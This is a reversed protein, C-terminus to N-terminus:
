HHRGAGQDSYENAQVRHAGDAQTKALWSHSDRIKSLPELAATLPTILALQIIGFFFGPGIVVTSRQNVEPRGAISTDPRKIFMKPEEDAQKIVFAPDGGQLWLRVRIEM